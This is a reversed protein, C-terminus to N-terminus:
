KGKGMTSCYCLFGAHKSMEQLYDLNSKPPSAYQLRQLFRSQATKSLSTPAAAKIQILISTADSKHADM